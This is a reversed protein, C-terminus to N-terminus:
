VEKINDRVQVMLVAVRIAHEFAKRRSHFVPKYDDKIFNTMSTVRDEQNDWAVLSRWEKSNMMPTIEMIIGKKQHFWTLVQDYTPAPVDGLQADYPIFISDDEDYGDYKAAPQNLGHILTGVEQISPYMKGDTYYGLVPEQFGIEQLKRGLEETLLLDNIDPKNENM